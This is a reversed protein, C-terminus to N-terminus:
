GERRKKRGFLADDVKEESVIAFSTAPAPAAKVPEAKLEGHGQAPVIRKNGVVKGAGDVIRADAVAKARKKMPSVDGVHLNSNEVGVKLKHLAKADEPSVVCRGPKVVRGLTM